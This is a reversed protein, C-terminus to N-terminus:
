ESKVQTKAPSTKSTTKVSQLSVSNAEVATAPTATTVPLSALCNSPACSLGKLVKFVGGAGSTAVLVPYRTRTRVACATVQSCDCRTLPYVTTTMGGISIAVPMNITATSPIAQIIFLCYRKCNGYTGAPIDIVLTDTGDITIVSVSNSYIARPCMKNCNCNCNM